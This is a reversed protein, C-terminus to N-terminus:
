PTMLLTSKSLELVPPGPHENMVNIENLWVRRYEEDTRMAVIKGSGREIIFTHV